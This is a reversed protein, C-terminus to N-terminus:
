VRKFLLRGMTTGCAPCYYFRSAKRSLRYRQYLKNCCGCRAKYVTHHNRKPMVLGDFECCRTPKAGVQLCMKKWAPGHGAAHGALAHAIEHLIVDTIVELTNHDVLYASLAIAKRNYYCLGLTHKGRNYFFSWQHLGHSAMLSRALQAIDM